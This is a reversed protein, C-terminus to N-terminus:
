SIAIPGEIGTVVWAGDILDLQYTLWTGCLGSCWLSVPVLGTSGDITPEGVGVIVAGDITPRLDETIWEAPDDIWRLPGFPEVVREIAARETGSLERSPPQGSGTASGAAPDLRSQLLYETFPPPGDGFTHDNTILQDIAAAMMEGSGEAATSSDSDGCAALTMVVTVFVAIRKM